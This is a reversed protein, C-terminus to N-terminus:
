KLPKLTIQLNNKTPESFGRIAEIKYGLPLIDRNIQELTEYGVVAKTEAFMSVINIIYHQTNFFTFDTIFLNEWQFLFIRHKAIETLKDIM